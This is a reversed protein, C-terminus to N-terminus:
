RSACAPQTVPVLGAGRDRVDLAPVVPPAREGRSSQASGGRAHVAEIAVVVGGVRRRGSCPEDVGPDGDLQDGRESLGARRRLRARRRWRRRADVVLSPPEPWCEAAPYRETRPRRGSAGCGVAPAGLNRDVVAQGTVVVLERALVRPCGARRLVGWKRLLYGRGFGMLYNKAPSGSGLTASHEHLGRAEPALRCGARRGCGCPWTSTRSIPSCRERRLRRGGPVRRTAFAAAAGRPDSRTPWTDRGARQDARREPLRLRAPDRDLEIGATEILGPKSGDRM